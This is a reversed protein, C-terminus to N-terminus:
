TATKEERAIIRGPSATVSAIMSIDDLFKTDPITRRKAARNEARKSPARTTQRSVFFVAITALGIDGFFILSSGISLVKSYFNLAFFRLNRGTKTSSYNSNKADFHAGLNTRFVFAFCM